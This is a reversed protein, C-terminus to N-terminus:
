IQGESGFVQHQSSTHSHACLHLLDCVHISPDAPEHQLDQSSRLLRASPEPGPVYNANPRSVVEQEAEALTSSLLYVIRLIKLPLLLLLFDRHINWINNNKRSGQRSPNCAPFWNM